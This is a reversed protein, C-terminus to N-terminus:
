ASFSLMAAHLATVLYGISRFYLLMGGQYQLQGM